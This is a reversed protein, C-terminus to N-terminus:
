AKCSHREKKWAQNEVIKVIIDGAVYSGSDYLSKYQVYAPQSTNGKVGKSGGDTGCSIIASAKQADTASVGGDIADGIDGFWVLGNSGSGGYQYVTKGSGRLETWTEAM